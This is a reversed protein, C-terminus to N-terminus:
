LKLRIGEAKYKELLQQAEDLVKGLRDAADDLNQYLSPDNVLRGATGEGKNVKEVMVAVEDAAAQARALVDQARGSLEKFEASVENARAGIDGVTSEVKTAASTWATTLEQAQDMVKGARDLLDKTTQRMGSDGLWQDADALAKDMRALTSRLNAPKGGAVDELTRPEVMDNLREGLKKYEVALADINDATRNLRAMPEKIVEQLGGLLTGPSGGEIVDDKQVIDALESRALGVSRFDMTADGTLGREVSVVARRPVHASERVMVRVKAGLGQVNEVKVVRGVKVGDLTVPSSDTLGGANTLTVFFPYQKQALSPSIEGFLLLMVILGVLGLLSTLGTLFDRFFTKNM